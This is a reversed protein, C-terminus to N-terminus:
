DFQIDACLSLHDSPYDCSPLLPEPIDQRLTSAKITTGTHMIYDEVRAIRVTKGDEIRMKFTTNDTCPTALAFADKTYKGGWGDTTCWNRVSETNASANMDAALIVHSGCRMNTMYSRLEVSQLTRAQANQNGAKMHTTIFLVKRESTKDQLKVLSAIQGGNAYKVYHRSGLTFRDRKFAVVLGLPSDERQHYHVDYGALVLAEKFPPLDDVEQLAILDADDRLIEKLQMPRRLVPDLAEKPVKPFGADDATACKDALVNWQFVRVVFAAPEDDNRWTREGEVTQKEDAM